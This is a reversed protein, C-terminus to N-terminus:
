VGEKRHILQSWSQSDVNISVGPPVNMTKLQLTVSDTNHSVGAGTGDIIISYTGPSTHISSTQMKLIAKTGPYSTPKVTPFEFYPSDGPALKPLQSSSDLQLSVPRPSGKELTVYVYIHVEDGTQWYCDPCIGEM